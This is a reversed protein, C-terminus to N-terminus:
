VVPDDPLTGTSAFSVYKLRNILTDIEEKRTPDLHLMNSVMDICLQKVDASAQTLGHNFTIKVTNRGPTFSSVAITPNQAGNLILLGQSAKLILHSTNVSTYVGDSNDDIALSTISVLDPYNLDLKISGNGDYYQDTRTTSGQWTRGTLLDIMNTARTVMETIATDSFEQASVSTFNRVETVTAYDAM